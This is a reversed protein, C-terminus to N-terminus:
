YSYASPFGQYPNGLAGFNGPRSFVVQYNGLTRSKFGAACYDFYYEWTRMFKEDFGLDLIKRQNELFNKRWCRLTPFYAPGINEVHEVSLRSAAAMATLVRNLSPLCGGPLVYEKVFGPSRINEDFLEEPMSSFKLGAEKVKAEALQLQKESITIGTYKCGTRKVVEIAFIGWGCGLELIEHKKEIRAKDILSSFKKLQAVTLDQDDDEMKFNIGTSYQMTEGLCLSFLENSLDYHHSINKRAQTLTNQRLVHKLFYIASSITATLLAPKWWVRNKNSRSVSSNSDHNAILILFLNLLGEEKDVLSFDGNIFADALGLDAGKMIQYDGLTRSKFGSACYDFYYEWTRIFKEDFGLGLIKSLRSAAAMASLIRSLPLLCGGPFIYEKIFGPSRRYEEFQEEPISIFQLIFFGDEALLSECCRFFEDIYENGVHEIMECSIIRDYKCTDPLQRYDSLLFKIKDQLGAEKVKAEAFKLQQESLTIGTYKCGTRKVVEIAFTGWGSGIDLVEHWKEIRAKDILSSIKREQAVKLDEDEDNKFIGSSYQMTEGLFLAFHENSLDYHRSINRRAQTLSNHRLVHKLFYKASAIGATFLAPSWWGRKKNLQSASSNLEKNAILILFLNLLGRDKDVFSFDGNIYADALGLDAETIIKWYFQPSHVRLVTKLSCKEMSGKFTFTRGGEELLIICGTSIFQQFFKTVLLLAGTEAFSLSLHTQSNLVPFHKGLIGNAAVMGAKFEDEHFNYGCFWIGRKGQIQDLELSAKSASITPLLHSTSWKLLTNKPKHDPNLTMFFQLSTEGVNQLVNLWYTLCAKNESSTIFNLASWVSQNKPMLNSDRHLFDDSSSYQFAGLVRTEEFTAQNGLLRVATPADVAMICGNYTEQFGDGRVIISDNDAALVSHVQCGAKLQCGKSELIDKILYTNQFIESYGRSKIFQGLTENRDIEPNTELMEIYSIAEDKFKNIERLLQWFYPNFTNKKDAFLSSFGHRTGWEYDHSVSFSVHSEDVDDIGLSEFLELTTPYTAPNLFLFGLDLDIAHDFNFTRTGHGGLQEEKEYVVVNIGAKALIYASVLGRIGGGIVAVVRTM